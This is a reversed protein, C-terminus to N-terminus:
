IQNNPVTATFITSKNPLHRDVTRFHLIKHLIQCAEAGLFRFTKSCALNKLGLSGDEAEM